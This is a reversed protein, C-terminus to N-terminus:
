PYLEIPLVTAFYTVRDYLFAQPSQDPVTKFLGGCTGELATKRRDSCFAQQATIGNPGNPLGQMMPLCYNEVADILPRSHLQCGLNYLIKSNAPVQGSVRPDNWAIALAKSTTKPDNALLSLAMVSELTAWNGQPTGIEGALIQVSQLRQGCAFLLASRLRRHGRHGPASTALQQLKTMDKRCTATGAAAPSKGMAATIIPELDASIGNLTRVFQLHTASRDKAANWALPTSPKGEYYNTEVYLNLADVRGTPDPHSRLKASDPFITQWFRPGTKEDKADAKSPSGLINTLTSVAENPNYGAAVLMDTGIRDAQLEQKPQYGSAIGNPIAMIHAYGILGPIVALRGITAAGLLLAVSGVMATGQLGGAVSDSDGHALLIHGTEHALLWALKDENDFAALLSDCIRIVGEKRSDADKDGCDDIVVRISPQFGASTMLKDEIRQVAATLEAPVAPRGEDPYFRATMWQDVSARTIKAIRKQAGQDAKLRALELPPPSKAGILALSLTLLLGRGIRGKLM